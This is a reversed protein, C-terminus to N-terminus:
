KEDKGSILNILKTFFFFLCFSTLLNIALVDIKLLFNYNFFIYFYEFLSYFLLGMFYIYIQSINSNVGMIIISIQGLFLFYLFIMSSSGFPLGLLSDQYFGYILILFFLGLSYDYNSRLFILLGLFYFFNIYQSSILLQLSITIFFISHFFLNGLGQNRIFILPFNM